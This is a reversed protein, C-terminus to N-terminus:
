FEEGPNLGEGTSPGESAFRSKPLCADFCRCTISLREPISIVIYVRGILNSWGLPLGGDASERDAMCVLSKRTRAEMAVRVRALNM